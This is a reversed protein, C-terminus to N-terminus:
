DLQKIDFHTPCIRESLFKLWYNDDKRVINVHSVFLFDLLSYDSQHSMLNPRADIQGQTPQTKGWM